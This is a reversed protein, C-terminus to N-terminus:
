VRITVTTSQTPSIIKTQMSCCKTSQSTSDSRVPRTAPPDQNNTKDPLTPTPTDMRQTSPCSSTSAQSASDESDLVDEDSSLPAVNTTTSRDSLFPLIFLMHNQIKRGKVACQQDEHVLKHMVPQIRSTLIKSIIKYDANLLSVPRYKSVETRNDLDKPLLTIYSLKMEKPLNGREVAQDVVKKLIPVLQGQFTQYFESTLGDTGPSKGKNLEKIATTIENETFPNEM